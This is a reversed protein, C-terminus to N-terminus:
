KKDGEPTDLQSEYRKLEEYEPDIENDESEPINTQGQEKALIISEYLYANSLGRVAAKRFSEIKEPDDEYMNTKFQKRVNLVINKTQGNKSGVYKALRLCDRYIEITTKNLKDM